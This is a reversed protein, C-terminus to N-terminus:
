RVAVLGWLLINVWKPAKRFILRLILVVMVLVSASLSMYFITYLLETM